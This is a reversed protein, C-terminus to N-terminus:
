CLCMVPLLACKEATAQKRRGAAAWQASEAWRPQEIRSLGQGLTDYQWLHQEASALGAKGHSKTSAGFLFTLSLMRSLAEDLTSTDCPWPAAKFWGQGIGQRTLALGMVQAGHHVKHLCDHWRTKRDDWSRTIRDCWWWWVMNVMKAPWRQPSWGPSSGQMTASRSLSLTQCNM